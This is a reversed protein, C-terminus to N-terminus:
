LLLLNNKLIGDLYFNLYSLHKLWVPSLQAVVTKYVMVKRAVSESDIVQLHVLMNMDAQNHLIEM